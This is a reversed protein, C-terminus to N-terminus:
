CSALVLARHTQQLSAAQFLSRDSAVEKAIPHPHSASFTTQPNQALATASAPQRGPLPPKSASCHDRSKSKLCRCM